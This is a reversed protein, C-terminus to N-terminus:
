VFKEKPFIRRELDDGDLEFMKIFWFNSLYIKFYM